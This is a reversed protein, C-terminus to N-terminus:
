SADIFIDVPVGLRDRLIKKMSDKPVKDGKEWCWVSVRSVGCMEALEDVSLGHEIRAKRIVDGYM